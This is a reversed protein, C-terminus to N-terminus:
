DLVFPADVPTLNRVSDPEGKGFLQLNEMVFEVYEDMTLRRAEPLPEKFVPLNLNTQPDNSYPKSKKM